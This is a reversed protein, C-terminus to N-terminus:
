GGGPGLGGSVSFLRISFFTFWREEGEQLNAGVGGMLRNGLTSATLGIGFEMSQEESFDLALASLGVGSGGLLGGGLGAEGSGPRKTYTAIWSLMPTADWTSESWRNTFGLSAVARASWGYVRLRFHDEWGRGTPEGDRYFVYAIRVEDDPLREGPITRLDFRTGVDDALTRRRQGPPTPLDRISFAPANLLLRQIWAGGARTAEDLITVLEELADAAARVDDVPGGLSAGRIRVFADAASALADLQARRREWESASFLNRYAPSSSRLGLSSAADLISGILGDASAGEVSTTTGTLRDVLRWQERLGDIEMVLGDAAEIVARGEPTRDLDSRISGTWETLRQADWALLSDVAAGASEVATRGRRIAEEVDERLPGLQSRLAEVAAQGASRATGLDDAMAQYEEFLAREEESVHFQLRDFRNIPGTPADNYGALRVPIPEGSTLLHARIEIELGLDPLDDLRSELYDVEREFLGRLMDWDWGLHREPSTRAAQRDRLARARAREGSLGSERLRAEIAADLARAMEDETRAFEILAEDFGSFDGSEEGLEFARYADETARLLRAMAQAGRQIAQARGTLEVFRRADPSEADGLLAARLAGQEVRVLVRSDIDVGLYAGGAHLVRTTDGDDRVIRYTIADRPISGEQAAADPFPAAALVAVMVATRLLAAPDARGRWSVKM